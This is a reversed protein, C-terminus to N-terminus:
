LWHSADNYWLEHRLYSPLSVFIASFLGYSVARGCTCTLIFRWSFHCEWGKQTSLFEAGRKSKRTSIVSSATHKVAPLQHDPGLYPFQNHVTKSVRVGPFDQKICCPKWTNDLQLLTDVEAFTNDTANLDTFSLNRYNNGDTKTYQVRSIFLEWLFHGLVTKGVLEFSQLKNM